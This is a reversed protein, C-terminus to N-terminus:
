GFDPLNAGALRWGGAGRADAELRCVSAPEVALRVAREPAWALAACVLARVSGGHAVVLADRSAAGAPGDAPGDATGGTAGLWADRWAVCRRLQAAFSEGGPPGRRVWDEGWAALAAGDDRHVAAWTAGEWAGFDLEVLRADVAVDPDRGGLAAHLVAASERARALPSAFWRAALLRARLAAPATAGLAGLAARGRASLAVDSRGAVVGRGHVVTHGHRVLWLTRPPASM